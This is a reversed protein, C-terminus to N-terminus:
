LGLGYQCTSFSFQRRRSNRITVLTPSSTVIVKCLATLPGPVGRRADFLYWTTKDALENKFHTGRTGSRVENDPTILYLNEDVDIVINFNRGKKKLRYLMYALFGTKGTGPTGTILVDYRHEKVKDWLEKYCSRIFLPASLRKLGLWAVGGSLTIPGNRTPCGRTSAKRIKKQKKKKKTGEQETEQEQPPELLAHWFKGFYGPYVIPFTLSSSTNKRRLVLIM